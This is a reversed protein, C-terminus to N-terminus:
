GLRQRPRRFVGRARHWRQRVVCRDHPQHRDPGGAGRPPRARDGARCRATRGASRRRRWKGVRHPDRHACCTRGAAQPALRRRHRRHAPAVHHPARGSGPGTHRLVRCAVDPVTGTERQRDLGARRVVAHGDLRAGRVQARGGPSALNGTRGSVLEGHDLGGLNRRWFVQSCSTSSASRSLPFCRHGGKRHVALRGERGQQQAHDRAHAIVLAM